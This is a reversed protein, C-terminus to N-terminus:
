EEGREETHLNACSMKQGFRSVAFEPCVLPRSFETTTIDVTIIRAIIAATPTIRIIIATRIIRVITVTTAATDV